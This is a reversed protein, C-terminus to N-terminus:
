RSLMEAFNTLFKLASGWFLRPDLATLLLVWEIVWLVLEPLRPRFQSEM